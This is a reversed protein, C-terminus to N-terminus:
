RGGPRDDNRLRPRGGNQEPELHRPRGVNQEPELHSPRGRLLERCGVRLPGGVRVTGGGCLEMGRRRPGGGEFNVVDGRRGESLQGWFNWTGM